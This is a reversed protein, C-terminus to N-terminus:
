RGAAVRSRAGVGSRPTVGCGARITAPAEAARATTPTAEVTAATTPTAEVASSTPATGVATVVLSQQLNRIRLGSSERFAPKKNEEM